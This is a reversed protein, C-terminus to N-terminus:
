LEKPLSLIRNFFFLKERRFLMKALDERTKGIDYLDSYVQVTKGM